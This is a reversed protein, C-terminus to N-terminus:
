GLKELKSLWRVFLDLEGLTVVTQVLSCFLARSISHLYVFLIYLYLSFILLKSTERQVRVISM